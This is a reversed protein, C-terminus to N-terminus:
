SAPREAFRHIDPRYEFRITSLRPDHGRILELQVGGGEEGLTACLDVGPEASLAKNASAAIVLADLSESLLKLSDVMSPPPGGAMRMGDLSDLVVLCTPAGHAELLQRATELVQDLSVEPDAEVVFVWKLWEAAARGNREVSEWEPSGKRLRGKEIDRAPVGSLRSLTRMRLAAKPLSFSLYLCPVKSRAAIQDTLQKLFGSLRSSDQDVVLMVGTFLGGATEDLGTFGTEFTKGQKAAVEQLYTAWEEGESSLAASAPPRIKGRAAEVGPPGTKVTKEAEPPTRRAEPVPRPRMPGGERGPAEGEAAPGGPARTAEGRARSAAGVGPRVAAGGGSAPAKPRGAPEKLRDMWERVEAPKPSDGRFLDELALDLPVEVALTHLEDKLNSLVVYEGRQNLEVLAAFIARTIPLSFHDRSLSDLISDKVASGTVNITLCLARLIACELSFLEMAESGETQERPPAM